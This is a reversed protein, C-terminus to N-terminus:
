PGSQSTCAGPTSTPFYYAEAMCMENLEASTGVTVLNSRDNQYSCSYHFKEGPAFTLFPAQQWIHVEPSDWNTTHVLVEGLQGSASKRVVSAEVGRKHMHTQMLFYNANAAPTCDGSVTQKGNPPIAISTNFSIQADALQYKEAKVKNVNLGIHAHIVSTGANIYHMDFIIREHAALTM